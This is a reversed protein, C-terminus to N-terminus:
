LKELINNDWFNNKYNFDKYFKNLDTEMKELTDQRMEVPGKKFIENFFGQVEIEYERLFSGEKGSEAIIDIRNSYPQVNLVM